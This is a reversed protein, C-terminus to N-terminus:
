DIIKEITPPEKIWTGGYNEILINDLDDATKFLHQFLLQGTDINLYRDYILLSLVVAEGKVSLTLGELKYNQQLLYEFLPKQNTTPLNCLYSDGVILGTKEYYSINIHASGKIIDWNNPGRRALNPPYGLLKLLKEITLAMGYPEFLPIASSLLIGNGCGPCRHAEISKETVLLECNSCLAAIHLQSKKYVALQTKLREVPLTFGPNDDIFTNVGIVAGDENILPGGSYGANLTIDHHNFPIGYAMENVKMVQGEIKVFEAGYPHGVAFVFDGVMTPQGDHLEFAAGEYGAPKALFALDYKEDLYLVEVIQQRFNKGYVVVERNDRVIHENTVILGESELLFGTGTSHPTAIQIIGNKLQNTNM